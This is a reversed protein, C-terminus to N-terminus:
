DSRILMAGNDLGNGILPGHREDFERVLDVRCISFGARWLSLYGLYQRLLIRRYMRIPSGSFPAIGLEQAIGLPVHDNSIM